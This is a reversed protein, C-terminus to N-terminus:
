QKFLFGFGYAQIIDIIAQADLKCTIVELSLIDEISQRLLNGLADSVLPLSDQQSANRAELTKKVADWRLHM